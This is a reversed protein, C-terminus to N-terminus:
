FEFGEFFRRWEEDVAHQDQKYAQYLNDIYEPTANSLFSLKESM